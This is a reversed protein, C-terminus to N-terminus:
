RSFTHGWQDKSHAAPVLLFSLYGGVLQELTFQMDHRACLIMDLQSYFQKFTLITGM